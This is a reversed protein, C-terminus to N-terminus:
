KLRWIAAIAVAVVALSFLACAGTFFEKVGDPAKDWEVVSKVISGAFMFVPFAMSVALATLAIRM